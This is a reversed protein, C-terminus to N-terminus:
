MRFQLRRALDRPQEAQGAREADIGKGATVRLQDLEAHGLARRQDAAGDHLQGVQKAIHQDARNFALAFQVNRVAREDKRFAVDDGEDGRRLVRLTEEFFDANLRRCCGVGHQDAAAFDCEVKGLLQEVRTDM